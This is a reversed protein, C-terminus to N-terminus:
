KLHKEAIKKLRLWNKKRVRCKKSNKALHVIRPNGVSANIYADIHYNGNEGLIGEVANYLATYLAARFDRLTCDMELMSEKLKQVVYGIGNEGAQLIDKNEEM